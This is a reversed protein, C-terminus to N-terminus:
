IEKEKHLDPFDLSSLFLFQRLVYFLGNSYHNIEIPFVYMYLSHIAFYHRAFMITGDLMYM